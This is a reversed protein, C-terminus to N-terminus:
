DGYDPTPDTKLLEQDFGPDPVRLPCTDTKLTSHLNADASLASTFRIRLSRCNRVSLRSELNMFIKPLRIAYAKRRM